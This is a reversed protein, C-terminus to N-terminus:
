SHEDSQGLPNDKLTQTLLTRDITPPFVGLVSGGLDNVDVIAIPCHLALSLEQCVMDPQLPGLVVCHNYPPLTYPCPGDISAAKWGAIRYFWGQRHFLKGLAGAAAALLIRFCGCERLAMEMTEPMALGIGYPSQYVFRSLFVALPRPHIEEIPIARGQACAVSKESLFLLDGEKLLDQTHAALISLLPDGAQIVPMRIPYRAFRRHQITIELAKEPNPTPMSTM